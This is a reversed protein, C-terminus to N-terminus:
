RRGRMQHEAQLNPACLSSQSAHSTATVHSHPDLHTRAHMARRSTAVPTPHSVHHTPTCPRQPLTRRQHTPTCKRTHTHTSRATSHAGSDRNDPTHPQTHTPHSPPTLPARARCGGGLGSATCALGGVRVSMWCLLLSVLPLSSPSPCCVVVCVMSGHMGEKHSTSIPSGAAGARRRARGRDLRGGLAGTSQAWGM